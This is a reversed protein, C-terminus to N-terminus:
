SEQNNNILRLTARAAEQEAAKKSRGSGGAYTVGGIVAEMTFVREHDPGEAKILRYCIEGMSHAQAYEQLATKSDPLARKPDADKLIFQEVFAKAAEIGGDLYLAGILAEMADSTISPRKRGGTKEEGRGIRLHDGLALAQAQRALAPESVIGVRAKTMVGEEEGECARYLYDSVILELVADGLFELRENAAERSEGIENVYSTHTMAQILLDQDTFHYGIKEELGVCSIIHDDVLRM